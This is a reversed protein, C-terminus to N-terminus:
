ERICGPGCGPRIRRRPMRVPLRDRASVVAPVRDRRYLLVPGVQFSPFRFRFFASREPPFPPPKWAVAGFLSLLISELIKWTYTSLCLRCLTKVLAGQCGGRRVDPSEQRYRSVGRWLRTGTEDLGGLPVLSPKRRLCERTPFKVPVFWGGTGGPRAIEGCASVAHGAATDGTLACFASLCFNWDLRSISGCSLSRREEAAEPM